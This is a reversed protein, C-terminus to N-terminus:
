KRLHIKGLNKRQVQEFKYNYKRFGNGLNKMQNM